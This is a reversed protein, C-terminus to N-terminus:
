GQKSKTADAIDKLKGKFWKSDRLETKYTKVLDDYKLILEPVTESVIISSDRTNAKVPIMDLSFPNNIAPPYPMEVYAKLEKEDIPEFPTGDFNGIPSKEKFTQENRLIFDKRAKSYPDDYGLPRKYTRVTKTITEQFVKEQKYNAICSKNATKLRQFFEAIYTFPNRAIM